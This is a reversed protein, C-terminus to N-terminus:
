FFTQRKLSDCQYPTLTPRASARDLLGEMCRYRRPRKARCITKDKEKENNALLYKTPHNSISCAQVSGTRFMMLEPSWDLKVSRTIRCKSRMTRRKEEIEDGGLDKYGDGGRSHIPSTGRTTLSCYFDLNFWKSFLNIVSWLTKKLWKKNLM